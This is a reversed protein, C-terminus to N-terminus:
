AVGGLAKALEVPTIETSVGKTGICVNWRGELIMNEIVHFYQSVYARFEKKGYVHAHTPHEGYEPIPVSMFIIAGAKAAKVLSTMFKDRESDLVHELTETCLVFDFKQDFAQDELFGEVFNVGPYKLKGMEIWRHCCDVATVKWGQKALQYAIYGEQCGVDLVSGGPAFKDRIFDKLLKVRVQEATNIKLADTFPPHFEYARDCHKKWEERTRQISM